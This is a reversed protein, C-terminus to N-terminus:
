QSLRFRYSNGMHWFQVSDITEPYSLIADAQSRYMEWPPTLNFADEKEHMTDHIVQAIQGALTPSKDVATIYYVADGSPTQSLHDDGGAAHVYVIYPKAEGKAAQGFFISSSGNALLATLVANAALADRIGNNLINIM